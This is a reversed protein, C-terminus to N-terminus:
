ILLIVYLGLVISHRSFSLGFTKTIDGIFSLCNHNFKTLLKGFLNAVFDRLHKM